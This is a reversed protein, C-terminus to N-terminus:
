DSFFNIVQNHTICYKEATEYFQGEDYAITKGRMERYKNLAKMGEIEILACVTQSFIYAAKQENTM